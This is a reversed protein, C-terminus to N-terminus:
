DTVAFSIDDLSALCSADPSRTPHSLFSTAIENPCADYFEVVHGAGPIEFRYDRTLYSGIRESELPAIVGDWRGALILTPVPSRVPKHQIAKARGVKWVRCAERTQAPVYNYQLPDLIVGAWLPRQRAARVLTSDPEFAISDRCHLVATKAESVFPDNPFPPTLPGGLAAAMFGTIDGKAAKDLTAPSSAACAPDFCAAFYLLLDGNVVAQDTGGAEVPLDITVPRRQLAAVRDYFRARLRPYAADCSPEDACGAFVLELMRDLAEVAGPGRQQWRNGVPSDLIVSRLGQPFLRMATLATAGDASWALLNWNRYGLAARLADLDAADAEADYAALDVKEAVLRRRCAAVGRMMLAPSPGAFPEVAFGDLSVQDIEPCGLHPQSFGVGRQNLLVVDRTAALPLGAVFDVTDPNIENFSPGGALFVVPDPEPHSTPARLIAVQLQIRRALRPSASRREPVSLVACDVPTAADLEVPCKGWQLPSPPAASAQAPLGITAAVVLALTTTRTGHM